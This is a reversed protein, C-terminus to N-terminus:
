PMQTVHSETLIWRKVERAWETEVQEITKIPRIKMISQNSCIAAIEALPHSDM